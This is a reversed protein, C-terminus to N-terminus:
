KKFVLYGIVNRCPIPGLYRSDASSPTYDGLLFVADVPIIVDCKKLGLGQRNVTSPLVLTQGDVIVSDDTVVLHEGPLGVIRKAFIEGPFQATSFIALDFRKIHSRYSESLRGVVLEGKRITPQMALTPLRYVRYGSLYLIGFTLYYFGVLTGLVVAAIKFFRKM